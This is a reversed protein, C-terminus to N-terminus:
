FHLDADAAAVAVTRLMASVSTIFEAELSSGLSFSTSSILSLETPYM